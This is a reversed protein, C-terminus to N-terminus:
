LLLDDLGNGAGSANTGGSAAPKSAMNGGWFAAQTKEKQLDLISKGTKSGGGM